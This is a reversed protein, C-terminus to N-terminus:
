RPRARDCRRTGAKRVTSGRPRSRWRGALCDVDLHGVVPVTVDVWTLRLVMEHPTLMAALYDGGSRYDDDDNMAPMM